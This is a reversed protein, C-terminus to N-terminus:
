FMGKLGLNSHLFDSWGSVVMCAKHPFGQCSPTGAKWDDELFGSLHTFGKLATVWLSFGGPSGLQGDHHLLIVWILESPNMVLLNM